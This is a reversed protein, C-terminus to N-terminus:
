VSLAHDGTGDIRAAWLKNGDDKNKYIIWDKTICFAGCTKKVLLSRTKGDHAMLEIQQAEPNTFFLGYPTANVFSYSGSALSQADSGDLNMRM